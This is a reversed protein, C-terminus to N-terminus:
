RVGRVVVDAYAALVEIATSSLEGSSAIVVGRPRDTHFSAALLARGKGYELLRVDAVNNASAITAARRAIEEELRVNIAIGKVPLCDVYLSFGAAPATPTAEGVSPPPTVTAAPMPSAPGPAEPAPDAKKARKTKPTPTPELALTPADVTAPPIAPPADPPLIGTAVAPTVDVPAPVPTPTTVPAAPVPTAAPAAKGKLMDSLKMAIRDGVSLKSVANCQDIWPCGGFATCADTSGEVEFPNDATATVKMEAVLPQTVNQWTRKMEAVGVVVSVSRSRAKGKTTYYVHSLRVRRATPWRAAAYAGYTLMQLDTALEEPTKAWKIDGTSKHDIIHVEDPDRPDILDIFGVIPVDLVELSPGPDGVIVGERPVREVTAAGMAQEVLLEPGRAPLHRVGDYASPHKPPAGHLIYSELESHIAVGVRQSEREPSRFGLVAEFFWKRKCLAHTKGASASVYNLARTSPDVRKM